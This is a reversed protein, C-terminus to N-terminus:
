TLGGKQSTFDYKKAPLFDLHENILGSNKRTFDGNSPKRFYPSGQEDDMQTPNEMLSRDRVRWLKAAM